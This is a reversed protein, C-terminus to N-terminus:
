EAPPVYGPCGPTHCVSQTGGSVRSLAEETSVNKAAAQLEELTLKKMDANASKRFNKM